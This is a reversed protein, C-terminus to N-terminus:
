KWRCQRQRRWCCRWQQVANPFPERSAALAPSALCAAETAAGRTPQSRLRPLPRVDGRRKCVATVDALGRRVVDGFGGSPFFPSFRGVNKIIFPLSPKSSSLIPVSVFFIAVSERGVGTGEKREWNKLVSRSLSAPPSSVSLSFLLFPLLFCYPFILRWLSGNVWGRAPLSIFVSAVEEKEHFM